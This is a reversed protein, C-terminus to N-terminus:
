EPLPGDSLNNVLIAGPRDRSTATGGELFCKVRKPTFACSRPAASGSSVRDWCANQLAPSSFLDRKCDKRQKRLIPGVKPLGKPPVLGDHNGATQEERRMPGRPRLLAACLIQSITNSIPQSLRSLCVSWCVPRNRGSGGWILDVM